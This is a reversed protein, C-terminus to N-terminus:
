QIRNISFGEISLGNPLPSFQEATIQFPQSLSFDQSAVSFATKANGGSVFTGSYKCTNGPARYIRLRAEWAGPEDIQFALEQGLLKFRYLGSDALASGFAHIELAEGDQELTAAPLVYSGLIVEGTAATGSQSLFSFVLQSPFEVPAPVLNQWATGNFYWHSQADSDYVLLGAAPNSIAIRQASTMRPCLFGLSDSVIDFKASPHPTTTGLGANGTQARLATFSVIIAPILFLIRKM